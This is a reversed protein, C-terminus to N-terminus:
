LKIEDFIFKAIQKHGLLSPHNDSKSVREYDWDKFTKLWSFSNLIKQFKEPIPLEKGVSWFYYKINNTKFLNDLAFCDFVLKYIGEIETYTELRKNNRHSIYEQNFGYSDLVCDVKALAWRDDYDEYQNNHIKPNYYEYRSKETWQIIAITDNLVEQNVIWNLTTRLIRQNSGCGMSLNVIKDAKLLNGLYHPWVSKLRLENNFEYSSGLGGGWTWSCGNTYLIM